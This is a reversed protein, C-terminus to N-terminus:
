KKEWRLKEVMKITYYSMGLGIEGVVKIKIEKDKMKNMRMNMM